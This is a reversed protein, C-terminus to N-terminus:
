KRNAARAKKQAKRKSKKLPDAVREVRERPRYTPAYGMQDFLDGRPGSSIAAAAAAMAAGLGAFPFIM